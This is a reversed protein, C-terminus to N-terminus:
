LTLIMQEYYNLKIIGGGPPLLQQHLLNKCNRLNWYFYELKWFKFIISFLLVVRSTFSDKISNSFKVVLSCCTNIYYIRVIFTITWGVNELNEIKLFFYFYYFFEHFQRSTCFIPEALSVVYLGQLIKPNLVRGGPPLLYRHWLNGAKWWYNKM